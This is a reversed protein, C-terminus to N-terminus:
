QTLFLQKYLSGKITAFRFRAYYTIGISKILRYLLKTKFKLTNYETKSIRSKIQYYFALVSYKAKNILNKDHYKQKISELCLIRADLNTLYKNSVKSNYLHMSSNEHQYYNYVIRSSYLCEKTCCLMYQVAFLGDEKFYISENFLLHNDMIISRKMPRNWIYGQFLKTDSHYFLKLCELMSITKEFQKTNYKKINDNEDYTAYSGLIMDIDNTAISNAYYLLTGQPVVDDADVFLIWEGSAKTIGLNRASSVGGNDKHIVLIRNDKTACEDCIAGSKDKSGDDVLIIEFDTFTQNIISDLCKKLYKEVNYVPIILSILPQKEHQIKKQFQSIGM